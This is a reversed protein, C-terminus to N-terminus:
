ETKPAYSAQIAVVSNADSHESAQHFDMGAYVYINSLPLIVRPFTLWPKVKKKVDDLLKKTDISDYYGDTNVMKDGDQVVNSENKIIAFKNEGYIKDTIIFGGVDDPALIFRLKQCETDKGSLLCDYNYNASQGNKKKSYFSSNWSKSLYKNMVQCHLTIEMGRENDTSYFAVTIKPACFMDVTMSSGSSASGGPSTTSESSEATLQRPSLTVGEKLLSTLSTTEYSWNETTKVCLSKSSTSTPGGFFTEIGSSPDKSLKSFIDNLADLIQQIIPTIIRDNFLAADIGLVNYKESGDKETILTEMSTDCPAPADPTTNMMFNVCSREADQEGDKNSAYSVSYTMARPQFLADETAKLKPLTVMYGLVYPNAIAGKSISTLYSSLMTQIKQAYKDQEDTAPYVKVDNIYDVNELDLFLSEVTFCQDSLSQEAEKFDSKIKEIHDTVAKEAEPTNYEKKAERTPASALDVNFVVKLGKLPVHRISSRKSNYEGSIFELTMNITKDTRAKVELTPTKIKGEFGVIRQPGDPDDYDPEFDNFMKEYLNKDSTTQRSLVGGDDDEIQWYGFETRIIKQSPDDPDKMKSLMALESNIAFMSLSVAMEYRGLNLNQLTSLSADMDLAAFLEEHSEPKLLHNVLNNLTRM